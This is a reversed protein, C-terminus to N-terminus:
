SSYTNHMTVTNKGNRKSSYMASDSRRLVDIHSKDSLRFESVGVSISFNKNSGEIHFCNGAITSRLREALEAAQTLDKNPLIAAFEEGGIRAFHGCDRLINVCLSAVNQIIKDGNLHGYLDNCRKFNDIDLMLVSTSDKYRRFRNFEEELKVMFYRRNKVGTLDDSSASEILEMEFLYKENIDRTIWMVCDHGDIRKPMKRIRAELYKRSGKSPVANNLKFDASHRSYTLHQTQNTQLAMNICSMIKQAELPEYVEGVIHNVLLAYDFDLIPDGKFVRLYKGEESLIFINDPISGLLAVYEDLLKESSSCLEM